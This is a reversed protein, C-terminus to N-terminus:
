RRRNLWDRRPPKVWNKRSPRNRQPVAETKASEDRIAAPAPKPPREVVAKPMADAPKQDPVRFDAPVWNMHTRSQAFPPRLFSAYAAVLLDLTENRARVKVWKGKQLEEATIEEVHHDLLRGTTAEDMGAKIPGGGTKGGPLHIYGPGPDQRRIRADITNKMRHVNPMWLQASTRKPGGRRKQDAFKARPMLEGNPNNGGKTLTIRAPHVGAARAIDWFTKAFENAGEGKAGGGGVDLQVTLPPPSMGSGDALPYRRNFLQLLIRAHEPHSFPAPSTLGDELVDISFRDFLWGEWGDGLGFASGELRNSQVDIQIGWVKVGAPVTGLFFGKERRLKLEDSDIPADGSLQSRYNKGGKTNVFTRLQTEDQRTEWEILAERWLRALKPWSTLALLGDVRFSRRRKSVESNAAVFGHAPLRFLSNLLPRRESPELICGNAQCIVRASAEADDATGTRDFDLDRLIDIEWRDGCQPCEPHLREDTGSAVFAETKGGRDDAPSSSVLKKERGEFSTLRGELLTIASGQGGEGGAAGIDDEIQDYDDIWGFRIPRQAFQAPVPWISALFMGRFKKLWINNANPDPSLKSKVASTADIMVNLRTEVFNQMLQQSPQCILMDSPDTDIIWGTWALGIDSKGGQSPGLLGVESTQPDSLADMVETQWPLIEPDYRRHRIAWASVTLKEKPRLLHV